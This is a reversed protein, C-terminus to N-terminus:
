PDPAATRRDLHPQCRRRRRQPRAGHVRGLAFHCSPLHAAKRRRGQILDQLRCLRARGPKGSRQRRRHDLVAGASLPMENLAGLVGYYAESEGEIIQLKLGIEREIREVFGEGNAAERVASTATALVTDVGTSDCFRKFLRLTSFARAMAEDSLGEETMGQRLRVVERIEDELRYSYGPIASMVVLRVTNSGFDIIAFRHPKLNDM